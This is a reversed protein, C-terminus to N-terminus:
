MALFARRNALALLYIMLPMHFFNDYSDCRYRSIRNRPTDYNEPSPLYDDFVGKYTFDCRRVASGIRNICPFAFKDDFHAVHITFVNM